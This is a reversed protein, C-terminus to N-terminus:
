VIQGAAQRSIKHEVKLDLSFMKLSVLFTWLQLSGISIREFLGFGGLNHAMVYVSLGGATFIVIGTVISYVFYGKFGDIKRLGIGIIVISFITLPVIAGTVIWHMLGPFTMSSGKLDEPFFNYLASFVHMFIYLLFGIKLAKVALRRVLIFASVAFILSFLAYISTIKTLLEGDPAGQATLDSIPQMFHSYGKWLIGGLVVHFVYIIVALMGFVTLKKFM